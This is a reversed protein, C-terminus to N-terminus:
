DLGLTRTALLLAAVSMASIFDPEQLLRHYEIIPWKVIELPEPEDGELKEAYLDQALVVTLQSSM